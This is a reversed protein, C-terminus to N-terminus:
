HDQEAAAQAALGAMGLEAAKQEVRKMEAAGEDHSASQRVLARALDFRTRTHLVAFESNEDAARALHMAAAAPQGAALYALGIYRHKSGLLVAPWGAVVLTDQHAALLDALREGMRRAEDPPLMTGVAPHGIVMAATALVAIRSPGRPLGSFEGSNASAERLLRIALATEGKEAHVLAAALSWVPDNQTSVSQEVLDTLAETLGDVQGTEYLLWGIQGMLAERAMSEGWPGSLRAAEGTHEGAANFDGRALALMAQLLAQTYRAVTTGSQEAFDRYARLASPLEALRGGRILDTIRGGLAEELHYASRLSLALDFAQRDFDLLDAPPVTDQLGARIGLIMDARAVPDTVSPLQRLLSRALEAQENEYQRAAISLRSTLVAQAQARLVSEGAPLRGIVDRIQETLEKEYLGYRWTLRELRVLAVAERGAIGLSRALSAAQKLAERAEDWRGRFRLADSLVILVDFRERGGAHRAAVEYLDAAVGFAYDALALDAAQRVLRVLEEAGVLAAGTGIAHRALLRPDSAPDALLLKLRRMHLTRRRTPPCTKILADIWNDHQFRYGLVQPALVSGHQREEDLVREVLDPDLNTVAAIVDPEIETDVACLAAAQLVTRAAEPRGHITSELVRLGEADLKGVAWAGTKEGDPPVQLQTSNILQPCGGTQRLVLEVVPPPPRAGTRGRLLEATAEPDLPPVRITTVIDAAARGAAQDCYDALPSDEDLEEPRLAAVLGVGRANALRTVDLLLRDSSAGGRHADDIVLVLPQRQALHVLMAAVAAAVEGPFRRGMLEDEAGALLIDDLIAAHALLGAPALETRRLMIWLPALLRRWGQYGAEGRDFTVWEVQVNELRGALVTVLLRSKGIGAPGAVLACGGRGQEIRDLFDNLDAAQQERDLFPGGGALPLPRAAVPPLRGEATLRILAGAWSLWAADVPGRSQWDAVVAHAAAVGLEDLTAVVHSLWERPEGSFRSGAGAAHDPAASVSGSPPSRGLAMAVFDERPSGRLNLADALRTATDRRTTRTLGRELDSIARSSLRAAHALDEQTLFAGKRLRRLLVAFSPGPGAAM